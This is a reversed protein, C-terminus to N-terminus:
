KDFPLRVARLNLSEGLSSLVTPQLSRSGSLSHVAACELGKGVPWGGEGALSGREELHGADAEGSEARLQTSLLHKGQSVGAKQSLRMGQKLREEAAEKLSCKAKPPPSM